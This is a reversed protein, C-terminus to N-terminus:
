PVPLDDFTLDGLDVEKGAELQVIIPNESGPYNLLFQNTVIDLILAYRGTEVNIFVFTGQSDTTTSPSTTRDLGAIIDNGTSDKMVEALDLVVEPVPVNNRLLRGRLSGMSPNATFTPSPNTIIPTQPAPYAPNETIVVEPAPYNPNETVNGQPIPYGTNQETTPITGQIPVSSPQSCASLLILLVGVFYLVSRKM